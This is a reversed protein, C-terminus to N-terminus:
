LRPTHPKRVTLGDKGLGEDDALRAADVLKPGSLVVPHKFFPGSRGHAPAAPSAARAQQRRRHWARPGPERPGLPHVAAARDKAAPWPGRAAPSPPGRTTGAPSSAVSDGNDAAGTTLLPAFSRFPGAVPNGAPLVAGLASKVAAGDATTIQSDGNIDKFASYIPSGPTTGLAGCVLLGDYAQVLGNQDADGPLVNFRFLFDSGATGNGSPYRSSGNTWEGDLLDGTWDPIPNGGNAKLDILM